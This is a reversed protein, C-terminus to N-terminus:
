TTENECIMGREALTIELESWSQHEVAKLMKIIRSNHVGATDRNVGCQEAIKTLSVQDGFYKAVIAKRLDYYGTCLGLSEKAHNVLLHIADQWEPNAKSRICCPKGCTCPYRRPAKSAVIFAENVTGLKAIVARIMGAQAARDLGGLSHGIASPTAMRNILPRQYTNGLFNLAFSAAEVANDFQGDANM